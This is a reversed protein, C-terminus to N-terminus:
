RWGVGDGEQEVEADNSNAYTNQQQEFQTLLDLCVNEDNYEFGAQTQDGSKENFNMYLVVNNSSVEPSLITSLSEQDNIEMLWTREIGRRDKTFIPSKIVVSYMDSNLGRCQFIQNKLEELTISRDMLLYRASGRDYNVSIGDEIINGGWFYLVRVRGGVVSMGVDITYTCIDTENM